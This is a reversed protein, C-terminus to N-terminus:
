AAEEFSDVLVTRAWSPANKAGGPAILAIMPCRTPVAPWPTWGDTYVILIDPQLDLAAEIGVVMDTGGRGKRGVRQVDGSGRVQQVAHVAVDVDLVACPVGTLKLIQLIETRGKALDRTAMSGSTDFVVAVRPLPEYLGPLLVRGYASQRRYPRKRTYDSAGSREAFARRVQALLLERWPIPSPALFDEAWEVLGAPVTGRGRQQAHERTKEAVHRWILDAEADSVCDEGDAAAADDGSTPGYCPLELPVPPELDLLLQYYREMVGGDGYAELAKLAAPIPAGRQQLEQRHEAAFASALARSSHLPVQQMELDDNIEFDMALNLLMREYDGSAALAKGRAFHKRRLHDLEHLVLGWPVGCEAQWREVFAPNYLLVWRDTVAATPVTDTARLTLRALASAFYPRELRARALALEMPGHQTM